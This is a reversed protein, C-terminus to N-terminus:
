AFTEANRQIAEDTLTCHRAIVSGPSSMKPCAGIIQESSSIMPAIFRAM